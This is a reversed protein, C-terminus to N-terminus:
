ASGRDGPHRRRARKGEAMRAGQHPGGQQHSRLHHASAGEILRRLTPRARPVDKLVLGFEAIGAPVKISQFEVESGLLDKIEGFFQEFKARGLAFGADNLDDM